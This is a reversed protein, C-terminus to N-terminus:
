ELNAHRALLEETSQAGSKWLSHFMGDFLLLVSQEFLSGAYQASTRGEVDAKSAAPVVVVTDAQKALPTEASATIALLKAGAKKAVDAALLVTKTTGSASAAVLVDGDAIPPTTVDGAVYAQLGLHMLRMAAMRLALASRGAGVLFVRRAGTLMTGAASVQEPKVGALVRQLEALILGFNDQPSFSTLSEAMKDTLHPVTCTPM